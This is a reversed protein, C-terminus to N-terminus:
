KVMSISYNQIINITLSNWVEDIIEKSYKSLIEENTFQKGKFTNSIRYNKLNIKNAFISGEVLESKFLHFM